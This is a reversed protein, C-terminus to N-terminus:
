GNGLESKHAEATCESEQAPSAGIPMLSRFSYAGEVGDAHRVLYRYMPRVRGDTPRQCLRLQYPGIITCTQGIREPCFLSRTILATDGIRLRM